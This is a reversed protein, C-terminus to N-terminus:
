RSESVIMRNENGVKNPIIANVAAVVQSRGSAFATMHIHWGSPTHPGM